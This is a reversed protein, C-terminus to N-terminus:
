PAVSSAWSTGSWSFWRGDLTFTYLVGATTFVLKTGFGGGTNVGNLLLANGGAATATGFTWTGQPTVLSGSPAIAEVAVTPSPPPPPPTVVPPPATAGIVSPTVQWSAALRDYVFRYKEGAKAVLPDFAPMTCESSNGCLGTYRTVNSRGWPLRLFVQVTMGTVAPCTTTRWCPTEVTYIIANHSPLFKQEALLKLTPFASTATPAGKLRIDVEMIPDLWTESQPTVNPVQAVVPAASFFLALVCSEFISCRM